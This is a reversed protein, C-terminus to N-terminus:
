GRAEGTTFRLIDQASNALHPVRRQQESFSDNTFTGVVKRWFALAGRNGPIVMVEWLGRYRRFCATAAYAGVGRGKFKRHVFFQAMNFEVTPDSGLTNVIAFGALEGSVRIFCPSAKADEFYPRLDDCEYVGTDPFAWGPADGLFESMDYVYYSAMAQMIPLDSLTAPVLEIM